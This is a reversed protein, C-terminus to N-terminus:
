KKFAVLVKENDSTTLVMRAPCGASCVTGYIQKIDIGLVALQETVIRLAGPKNELDVVIVENEKLSNYGAKKLADTARLNDVTVLMVKAENNVAYGAVAEINIGHSSVIKSIDALIGIKNVVTVVIEKGLRAAKIM